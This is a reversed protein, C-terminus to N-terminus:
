YEYVNVTKQVLSDIAAGIAQVTAKDQIAWDAALQDMDHYSLWVRNREDQWISVRLPLDLAASQQDLMLKTGVNPKGFVVVQTPRMTLGVKEANEAHDFTAFVPVQQAALAAKLRVVTENVSFKSEQTVIRTTNVGSGLGPKYAEAIDRALDTLDIGEVNTLLTVCVLESALTFRSLYSSFGPSSGKIEMFGPHRTFEWGAMAPVVTGNALKTPQYILAHNEESKVLTSGALAIDWKSIDEASSWLDAFAFVNQSAIAGVPVLNGQTSKYGTAPEVPNIYPIEQKFLVHQNKGPQPAPRDLFSKKGFDSAFMTSQLGLPEIQFQTVYDHFSMGSAKEIVLGLLAFDTASMRVQTGAEFLLPKDRVMAILATPTHSGNENFTGSRRYDPIGSAHQLLQFLTVKKWAVPLDPLYKGVQDQIDLKHAEYLQFVAVATFGQTIPGVNWMTKTSALEDYNLNTRGYGASRPIYPAQVIAMTMGPLHHRVMFDAVLQDVYQGNARLKADGRDNNAYGSPNPVAQSWAIIPAGFALLVILGAKTRM